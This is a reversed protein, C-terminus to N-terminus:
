GMIFNNITIWNCFHLIWITANPSVHVFIKKIKDNKALNDAIIKNLM